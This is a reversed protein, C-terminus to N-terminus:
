ASVVAFGFQGNGNLQLGNERLTTRIEPIRTLILEKRYGTEKALDDLNINPNEAIAKAIKYDFNVQFSCSGLREIRVLQAKAMETKRQATGKRVTGPEIQGLCLKLQLLRLINEQPAPVRTLRSTLMMQMYSKEIKLFIIDGIEAETVKFKDQIYRINAATTTIAVIKGNLKSLKTRTLIIEETIQIDLPPAKEDDDDNDDDKGDDDEDEDSEASEASEAGEDEDIEVEEESEDDDNDDEDMEEEGEDDDDDVGVGVKEGTSSPLEVADRLCQELNQPLGDLGSFNEFAAAEKDLEEIESQLKGIKIKLEEERKRFELVELFEPLADKKHQLISNKYKSRISKPPRSGKTDDESMGAIGTCIQKYNEEIEDLRTKWTKFEPNTELQKVKADIESIKSLMEGIAQIAYGRKCKLNHVHRAVANKLHRVATFVDRRSIGSNLLVYPTLNDRHEKGRAVEWFRRSYKVEVKQGCHIEIERSLFRLCCNYAFSRQEPDDSFQEFIKRIKSGIAVFGAKAAKDFTFSDKNQLVFNLFAIYEERRGLRLMLEIYFKMYKVISSINPDDLRSSDIEPCEAIKSRIPLCIASDIDVRKSDVNIDIDVKSLADKIERIIGTFIGDDIWPPRILSNTIGLLLDNTIRAQIPRIM